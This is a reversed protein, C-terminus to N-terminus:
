KRKYITDSGFSDKVNLTDGDLVYDLEMPSTNGTYTISLKGAEATYTFEMVTGNGLDYTGTGDEKFNYTYGGSEYEWTGVISDSKTDGGNNGGNGNKACSVAFVLVTLVAGIAIIRKLANKM